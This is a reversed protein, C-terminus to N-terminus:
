ADGGHEILPKFTKRIEDVLDPGKMIVARAENDFFDREEKNLEKSTVIIFPVHRLKAIKRVHRFFELGTLKPLILDLVIIDPTGGADVYERADAGDMSEILDVGFPTLSYKIQKRAAPDDDVILVSTITRNINRIIADRLEDHEIPKQIYDMAGLISGKKENAVISVIIVPISKTEPDAKLQKLVEWGPIDPLELDLSILDPHDLKAKKLAETGTHAEITSAGFQSVINAILVTADPNDDVILIKKGQIKSLVDKSESRKRLRTGDDEAITLSEPFELTFRSGKGVTSSVTLSIGLLDAFQKCLTLGLGTGGYQRTSSTDGQQFSNFISDIQDEPIGIGTDSIHMFQPSSTGKYLAVEISVRGSETFKISNRVLNLIIQKLKQEDTTVWMDEHLSDCVLDIPKNEVMSETESLITQVLAVVDVHSNHIDMKGAEVKSLDLIDNIIGLLHKGNDSIRQIYVLDSENISNSQNKLLLNSFGIVSNLPTRLEHSMNALFESKSASSAEAELKAQILAREAQKRHTIDEVFGDYYLANDSEDRIAIASMSGTFTSGDKRKYTVERDIVRNDEQMIKDFDSRHDPNAYLDSVSLEMMEMRSAYGFISVFGPNIEIFKGKPGATTRFVGVRLNATLTRYKEESDILALETLHRQTVDRVISQFGVIEGEKTQISTVQEVWKKEGTKTLIPFINTTEPTKSNFQDYYNQSVIQTYDPTILETFRMNLLEETTYGTLKEAVPNAYTFFGNMDTTYVVDTSNEIIHRYRKEVANDQFRIVYPLWTRFGFYLLMFGGLSFVLKELIAQTPTDGIIVYHNLAPFNDTVDLISGLFILAFGAVLSNWGKHSYVGRKRGYYLLYVYISLLVVARISEIAVDVNM